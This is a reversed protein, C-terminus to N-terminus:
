LARFRGFALPDGEIESEEKLLGRLAQSRRYRFVFSLARPYKSQKRQESNANTKNNGRGSGNETM